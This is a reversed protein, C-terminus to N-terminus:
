LHTINKWFYKEILSSYKFKNEAIKFLTEVDKPNTSESGQFYTQIIPPFKRFFKEKSYKGRLSKYILEASLSKGSGPKGIMILPIKTIVSIFLLLVNDKLIRNKSIGEDLKLLYCIFDEEFKIFDNFGKFNYEM